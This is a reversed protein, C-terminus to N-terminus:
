GCTRPPQPGGDRRMSQTGYEARVENLDFTGDRNKDHKMVVKELDSDLKAQKENKLSEIPTNTPANPDVKPSTAVRSTSIVSKLM